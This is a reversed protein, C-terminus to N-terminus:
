SPVVAHRVSGVAARSKRSSRGHAVRDVGLSGVVSGDKGEARAARALAGLPLDDAGDGAEIVAGGAVDESREIEGAFHAALELFVGAAAFQHRVFEGDLKPLLVDLAHFQDILEAGIGFK